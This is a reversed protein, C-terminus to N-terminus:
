LKHHHLCPKLDVESPLHCPRLPPHRCSTEQRSGGVPACDPLAGPVPFVIFGRPSVCASEEGAGAPARSLLGRTPGLLMREPLIDQLKTLTDGSGLPRLDM